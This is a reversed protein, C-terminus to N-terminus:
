KIFTRITKEKKKTYPQHLLTHSFKSKKIIMSKKHSFTEFSFKGHYNGMGSNGNGGFPMDSNGFHMMVENVCGGGFPIQEILRDSVQNNETFIYCALPREGENVKKVVDELNDYELIPLIPGFIESFMTPHDHNLDVLITPEIKLSDRDYEGGYFINEPTLYTILRNFSKENVIRPYDELDIPSDGLSEKLYSVIEKLLKEKVSKQVLVYDPAICTQGTNLTKGWVLSKAAQKINADSHIIAPSKGGLELTVPTLNYSARKMIEKGVNPSGTFFIHDVGYEIVANVQSNGGELVKIYREDFIESLILKVIKEVNPSNSSMKILSTNGAGISGVLPIMVLNFPYNWPSILLSVGKPESYVISKSGALYFSTKVKQPQMWSKLNKVFKDIEEYVVVIESFYAELSSKGLDKHLAFEIEKEYRKIANRLKKLNELRFEYNKTTGMEFYERQSRIIEM